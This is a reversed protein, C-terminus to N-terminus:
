TFIIRRPPLSKAMPREESAEGTPSRPPVAAHSSPREYETHRWPVNIHIRTRTTLLQSVNKVVRGLHTAVSLDSQFLHRQSTLHVHRRHQSHRMLYCM